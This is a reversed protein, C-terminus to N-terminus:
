QLRSRNFLNVLKNYNEDASCKSAWQNKANVRYYSNNMNALIWQAVAATDFEKDILLGVNGDVITAIVPVGFSLAEMISVPIGETESVNIFFDIANNKYFEIIENKDIHGKFVVSIHPGLTATMSKLEDLLPGSGIHTWEIPVKIKELIDIILHIRKLPIVNSCSLIRIKGDLSMATNGNDFVGLRIVESDFPINKYKEKLYLEGNKSIFLACTLARLLQSRFPLYGGKVHEYLDSGHFRVFIKNAYKKRIFPV